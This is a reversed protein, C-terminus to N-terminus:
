TPVGLQSSPLLAAARSLLGELPESAENHKNRQTEGHAVEEEEEAQAIHREAEQRNAPQQIDTAARGGRRREAAADYARQATEREATAEGLALIAQAPMLEIARLENLGQEAPVSGRLSRTIADFLRQTQDVAV